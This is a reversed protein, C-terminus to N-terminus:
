FHELEGFFKASLHITFSWNSFINICVAYIVLYLLVEWRPIIGLLDLFPYSDVILKQGRESSKFLNLIHTMDVLLTIENM